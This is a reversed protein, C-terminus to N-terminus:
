RNLSKLVSKNIKVPFQKKLEAIWDEELKLQYDNLVFGRADDFERLDDGPLRELCYLFGYQETGNIPQPQTLVGPNIEERTLELPLQDLEFRGTDALVLNKYEDLKASWDSISPKIQNYLMHAVASDACTFFVGRVSEKWRYKSANAKYYNKLGDEDAAARDWVQQQMAEFLLTGERFEALQSAFAPNYQELHDRYEQMVQQKIYNERDQEVSAQQGTRSRIEEQRKRWELFEAERLTRKGIRAFVAEAGTGPKPLLEFGVLKKAKQYAMEAPLPYRDSAQVLNRIAERIGAQTTDPLGERQLLKVIHMGQSTEFPISLDGPQLKEVVSEFWPDYTGATFPPLQGGSAFSAADDSYRHALAAFDAGQQLAKYISDARQQIAQRNSENQELLIQAISTKGKSPRRDHVYFIHYARASRHVGSAKKPETQYALNELAYPLTFVSIWGILGKNKNVSPDESFAAAVQEFPQGNRLAAMAKNIKQFAAVSDLSADVYIHSVLREEQSRRMAEQLLAQETSDDRMYQRSVENQFSMWETQVSPLTDLRNAYAWAVKLKYRTYLELYDEYNKPTPEVGANNKAFAQLFEAKSVKHNGYTFLTQAHSITCACLMAITFLIRPNLQRM